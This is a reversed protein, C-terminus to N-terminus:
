SPNSNIVNGVILLGKSPTYVLDSDNFIKTEFELIGVPYEKSDDNKIAYTIVLGESSGTIIDVQTGDKKYIYLKATYGELDSLGSITEVVNLADGKKISITAM